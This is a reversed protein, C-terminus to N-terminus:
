KLLQLGPTRKCFVHEGFHDTPEITIFYFLIVIIIKIDIEIPLCKECFIHLCIIQKFQHYLICLYLFFSSLSNAGGRSNLMKLFMWCHESLFNIYINKWWKTETINARVWHCYVHIFGSSITWDFDTLFCANKKIWKLHSIYLAVEFLVDVHPPHMILDVTFFFCANLFIIFSIFACLSSSNFLVTMCYM